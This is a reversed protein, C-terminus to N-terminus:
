PTAPNPKDVLRAGASYPSSGLSRCAVAQLAEFVVPFCKAAPEDALVLEIPVLYQDLGMLVRVRSAPLIGDLRVLPDDEGHEDGLLFADGFEFGFQLALIPRNVVSFVPEVWLEDLIKLLVPVV